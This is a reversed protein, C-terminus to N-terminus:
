KDLPPVTKMGTTFLHQTDQYCPQYIYAHIHEQGTTNEPILGVKLNHLHYCHCSEVM